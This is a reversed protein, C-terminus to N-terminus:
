SIRSSIAIPLIKYLKKEQFGEFVFSIDIKKELNIFLYEFLSYIKFFAQNDNINNDEIIGSIKACQQYSNNHFVTNEENKLGMNRSDYVIDTNSVCIDFIHNEEKLLWEKVKNNIDIYDTSKILSYFSRIDYSKYTSYYTM